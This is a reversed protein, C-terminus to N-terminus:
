EAESQIFSVLTEIEEASLKGEFSPMGGKGNTIVEVYVSANENLNDPLMAPGRGGNRNAGHCGACNDQYLVEGSAQEAPAEQNSGGCAVLTLSIALALLIWVFKKKNM